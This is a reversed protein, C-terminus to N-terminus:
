PYSQNIYPINLCNLDCRLKNQRYVFGTKCACPENSQPTGSANSNAVLACNVDCTLADANWTYGVGCICTGNTPQTVTLNANKVGNCALICAGGSWIKAPDTCTCMDNEAVRSNTDSFASCDLTCTTEDDSPVSTSNCTSSCSKTVNDWKNVPSCGCINPDNSVVDAAFDFCNFQCRNNEYDYYYNMPCKSCGAGTCTFVCTKSTSNWTSGDKCACTLNDGPMAMSANVIKECDFQCSSTLTNWSYPSTCECKTRGDASGVSNSITGCALVCEKWTPNWVFNTNCSCSANGASPNTSNTAALSSCKICYGFTGVVISNTACICKGSASDFTYADSVCTCSAAVGTPNANLVETCNVNANAVAVVMLMVGLWLMTRLIGSRSGAPTARVSSISEFNVM